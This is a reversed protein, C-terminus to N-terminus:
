RRAREHTYLVDIPLPTGGLSTGARAVLGLDAMPSRYYLGYGGLSSEVSEGRPYPGTTTGMAARIANAGVPISGCEHPCKFVALGYEWERRKIFLSLDTNTAKWGLQRYRDLM